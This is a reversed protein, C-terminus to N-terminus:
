YIEVNEFTKGFDISKQGEMGWVSSCLILFIRCDKIDRTRLVYTERHPFTCRGCPFGVNGGHFVYLPM